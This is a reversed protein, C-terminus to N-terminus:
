NKDSILMESPERESQLREATEEMGRMVRLM